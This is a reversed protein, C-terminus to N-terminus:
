SNLWVYLATVLFWTSWLYPRIGTHHLWIIIWYEDQLKWATVILQFRSQTKFLLSFFIIIYWWWWWRCWCWCWCWCWALFMWEEEEFLIAMGGSVCRSRCGSLQGSSEPSTREVSALGLSLHVGSRWSRKMSATFWSPPASLSDVVICWM